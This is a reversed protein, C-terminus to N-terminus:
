TSSNELWDHIREFLLGLAFWAPAYDLRIYGLVSYPTKGTYDWPCAGVAMDLTSGSLFEVAWIVGLWLIGRSYWRWHRIANHLFELFVALGYIPFM